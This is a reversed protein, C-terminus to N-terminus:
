AAKKLMDKFQDFVSLLDEPTSIYNVGRLQSKRPAGEFINFSMHKFIIKPKLNLCDNNFNHYDTKGWLAEIRNYRGESIYSKNINIKKNECFNNILKKNKSSFEIINHHCKSSCCLPYASGTINQPNFMHSFAFAYNLNVKLNLLEEWVRFGGENHTETLFRTCIAGGAMVNSPVFPNLVWYKKYLIDPDKIVFAEAYPSENTLWHIFEKHVKESVSFHPTAMFSLVYLLKASKRPYDLLNSHCATVDSIYYTKDEYVFAVKATFSRNKVENNIKEFLVLWGNDLVTNYDKLLYEYSFINYM